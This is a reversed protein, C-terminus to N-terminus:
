AGMALALVDNASQVIKLLRGVIIPKDIDVHNKDPNEMVKLMHILYDNHVILDGEIDVLPHTNKIGNKKVYVADVEAQIDGDGVLEGNGVKDSIKQAIDSVDDKTRHSKGGRDEAVTIAEYYEQGAAELDFKSVKNAKNKRRLNQKFKLTEIIRDVRLKFEKMKDDSDLKISNATNPDVLCLEKLVTAAEQKAGNKKLDDLARCLHYLRNVGLFPLHHCETYRAILMYRKINGMKMTVVNDVCWEEFGFEPCYENILRECEILRKGKAIADDAKYTDLVGQSLNKISEQSTLNSAHSALMQKAVINNCVAARRSTDTQLEFCDDVTIFKLIIHHEAVFASIDPIDEKCHYHEMDLLLDELKNSVESVHRHFNVQQLDFHRKADSSIEGHKASIAAWKRADKLATSMQATHDGSSPLVEIFDPSALPMVDLISADGNYMEYGLGIDNSEPSCQHIATLAEEAGLHKDYGIGTNIYALADMISTDGLPTGGDACLQAYGELVIPAGFEPITKEPGVLNEMKM